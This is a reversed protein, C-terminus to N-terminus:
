NARSRGGSSGDPEEWDGTITRSKQLKLLSKAAFDVALGSSRSHFAPFENTGIGIVPCGATELFELTRPLDLISKAGACVVIMPISALATMDASIDGTASFDKHVGGIGGTSFVKIGCFQAIRMTAAVTTAGWRANSMTSAM